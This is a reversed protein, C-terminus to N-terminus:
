HSAPHPSPARWCPTMFGLFWFEEGLWRWTLPIRQMEMRLVASFFTTVLSWLQHDSFTKINSKQFDPFFFPSHLGKFTMSTEMTFILRVPSFPLGAKERIQPYEGEWPLSCVKKRVWFIPWPVERTTRHNLSQRGICPTCTWDRTSSSLDWWFDLVYFCFYCHAHM